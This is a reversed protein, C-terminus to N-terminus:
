RDAGTIWQRLITAKGIRMEVFYMGNPLSTLRKLMGQPSRQPTVSREIQTGRSDFVRIRSAERLDDLLFASPTPRPTDAAPM